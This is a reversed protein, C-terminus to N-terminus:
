QVARELACSWFDTDCGVRFHIWGFAYLVVLVAVITLVAKTRDDM